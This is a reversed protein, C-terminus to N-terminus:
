AARSIDQLTSKVAPAAVSQGLESGDIISGTSQTVSSSVENAVSARLLPLLSTGILLLMGSAFSLGLFNLVMDMIQDKRAGTKLEKTVIYVWFILM